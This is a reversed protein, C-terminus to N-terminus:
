YRDYPVGVPYVYHMVNRNDITSSGAGLISM